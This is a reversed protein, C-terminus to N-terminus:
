LFAANLSGYVKDPLTQVVYIRHRRLRLRIDAHRTSWTNTLPTVPYDDLFYAFRLNEGQPFLRMSDSILSANREPLINRAPNRELSSREDALVALSARISSRRRNFRDKDSPGMSVLPDGIRSFFEPSPALRGTARVLDAPSTTRTRRRWVQVSDRGPRVM